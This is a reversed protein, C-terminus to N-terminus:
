MCMESPSIKLLVEITKAIIIHIIEIPMKAHDQFFACCVYVREIVANNAINLANTNAAYIIFKGIAKPVLPCKTPPVNRATSKPGYAAIKLMVKTNPICANNKASPPITAKPM